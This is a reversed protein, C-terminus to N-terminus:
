AEPPRREEERQLARDARPLQPQVGGARRELIQRRRQLREAREAQEPRRRVKEDINPPVVAHELMPASVHTIFHSASAGGGGGDLEEEPSARARGVLEAALSARNTCGSRLGRDTDGRVAM